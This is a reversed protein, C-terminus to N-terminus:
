VGRRRFVCCALPPLLLSLSYPRGHYPVAEALAGGLNGLNSGGYLESDSNLIEEYFGPRPVGVRYHFRPVPTFNLAFLLFDDLDKGKRLFTIVSNEADNCDIWEFGAHEHDHEWLAREQLYLRNLDRVFRHLKRHPEYELLSWDLAEDHNWERRQGFEGGMFLLKKGPYGFLLGFLLRLNAFKQWDDGPM